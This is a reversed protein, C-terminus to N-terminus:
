HPLRAGGRNTFAGTDEPTSGSSAEPMNRACRRCVEPTGGSREGLQPFAPRSAPFSPHLLFPAYSQRIKNKERGPNTQQDLLIRSDGRGMGGKVSGWLGLSGLASTGAGLGCFFCKAIGPTRGLGIGIELPALKGRYFLPGQFREVRSRLKSGVM